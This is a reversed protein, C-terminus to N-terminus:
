VAQYNNRIGTLPADRLRKTFVLPGRQAKGHTDLSQFDVSISTTEGCQVWECPWVHGHASCEHELVGLKLTTLRGGQSISYPFVPMAEMRAQPVELTM